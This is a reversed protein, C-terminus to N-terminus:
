ASYSSKEFFNSSILTIFAGFGWAFIALGFWKIGSITNMNQQKREKDYIRQIVFATVLCVIATVTSEIQAYM